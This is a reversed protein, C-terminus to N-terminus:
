GWVCCRPPQIVFGNKSPFKTYHDLPYLRSQRQLATNYNYM